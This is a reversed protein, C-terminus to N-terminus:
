QGSMRLAKGVTRVLINFDLLLSKHRIYYLDYQLKVLADEDTEGYKYRVQAWGTVGPRLTHRTRYFPIKAQLREVHEPREPRPGVLSMEGRLVNILQPTEDLRTKRLWRGVRTVRSDNRTAFVAGTQQEANAVMTRFKIIRFLRGYRGVRLQTYFVGGRSDLVILLAIPPLLVLWVALGVLSLVIDMLRKLFPYPDFASQESLPLVVAWQDGVHEVPVRETVREYLLPMPTIAVGHEYADMVAQFTEGDLQPTATIVLEAVADRRVFNMLDKSTGIVPVGRMTQGVEHEKGIIGVIAFSNPAATRLTDIITETSWDTGVLLLRRATSAWGILAPNLLRWLAVLLFSAVGYYAIFLRPLADRQSLFFVLLYVVLMQLTILLLRQLSQMRNAALALDYFNSASALTFWLAPLVVYWFSRPLVFALDFPVRAARSWIFLAITVALVVALADGLMLLFRRESFRLQPRTRRPAHHPSFLM